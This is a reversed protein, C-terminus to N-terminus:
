QLIFMGATLYNTKRPLGAFKPRSFDVRSRQTMRKDDNQAFRLIQSPYFFFLYKPRKDSRECYVHRRTTSTLSETKDDGLGRVRSAREETHCSSIPRSFGVRRKQHIRSVSVESMTRLIVYLAKFDEDSHCM